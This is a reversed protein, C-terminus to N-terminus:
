QFKQIFSGIRPTVFNLVFLWTREGLNPALAHHLPNPPFPSNSSGRKGGSLVTPGRQARALVAPGHQTDPCSSAPQSPSAGPFCGLVTQASKQGQDVSCPSGPNTHWPVKTSMNQVFQAPFWSCHHSHNDLIPIVTVPCRLALTVPLSMIEAASVPM